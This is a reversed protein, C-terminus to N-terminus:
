DMEPKNDPALVIRGDSTFTAEKRRKWGLLYTVYDKAVKNTMKWQIGDLKRKDSPEMTDSNFKHGSM